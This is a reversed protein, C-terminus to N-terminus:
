NALSGLFFRLSTTIPNRLMRSTGNKAEIV